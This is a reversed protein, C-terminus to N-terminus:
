MISCGNLPVASAIGAAPGGPLGGFGGFEAAPGAASGVPLGGTGGGPLPLLLPLGDPTLELGPALQRLLERPPPGYTQRLCPALSLALLCSPATVRVRARMM